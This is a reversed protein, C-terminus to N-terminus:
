KLHDQSFFAAATKLIYNVKKLKINEQRLRKLEERESLQLEQLLQSKDGYLRKWKNINVAPIGLQEAAERVSRLSKALGVAQKKFEVEYKKGM